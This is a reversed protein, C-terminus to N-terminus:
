ILKGHRFTKIVKGKFVEGNYPSYKGKSFFKESIVKWEKELDILVFNAEYGKKFVGCNVGLRNAPKQAMLASLKSLSIAGSLVLAKYCVAFATELGSFGCAGEEKDQMTHPAHDTGIMDVTGNKIGEILALRDIESRIPPNVFENVMNSLYIHHPTVDCTVKDNQMEKANKVAELSAKTSCHTIHINCDAKKALYLNRITAIDEALALLNEAKAMNKEIEAKNANPSQMLKIANQRFNKAKRAFHVDECHCLVLIGNESCKQMAEFMVNANELDFGDESIVPNEKFDLNDLHSTDNGEFNKSISISQIINAMNLKQADLQVQKAQTVSSIVPKTNPMLVLTGFGGAKAAMLATNLEEKESLGPYRFHAHIDVFAPMLVLGGCDICETEGNSFTSIDIKELFVESILSNEVLIAGNTDCFADVLRVNYFLTKM